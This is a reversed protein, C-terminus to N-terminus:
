AGMAMASRGGQSVVPEGVANDVKAQAEALSHTFCLQQRSGARSVTFREYKEDAHDSAYVEHVIAFGRYMHTRKIPM